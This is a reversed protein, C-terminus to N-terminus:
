KLSVPHFAVELPPIEFNEFATIVLLLVIILTLLMMLITIICHDLIVVDFLNVHM